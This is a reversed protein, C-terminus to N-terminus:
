EIEYRLVGRHQTSLGLQLVDVALHEIVASEYLAVDVARLDFAAKTLTLVDSMDHIIMGLLEVNGGASM